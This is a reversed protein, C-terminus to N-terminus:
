IFSAYASSDGQAYIETHNKKGQLHMIAYRLILQCIDAKLLSTYCVTMEDSYNFQHALLKIFTSSVVFMAIPHIM